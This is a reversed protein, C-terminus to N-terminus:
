RDAPLTGQAVPSVPRRGVRDKLRLFPEELWTFSAWAVGVSLVVGLVVRAWEPGVDVHHRLVSMVPFHYLYLGYSRAGFWRLPRWSLARSAIAGPSTVVGALVVVTLLGTVGVPGTLLDEPLSWPMVLLALLAGTTLTSVTGLLRDPLRHRWFHLLVALISGWVIPFGRLYTGRVNEIGAAWPVLISALAVLGVLGGCLSLWRRRSTLALLLLPWVVYFHEEIALTWTHDLLPAEHGTYMWWNAVYFLAAVVGRWTDRIQGGVAGAALVLLSTAVLAPYLRLLRRLYFRRLRVRGHRAIEGLLIASILFGSLAFFVDVRVYGNAAMGLDAHFLVVVIAAIGRLGDLGPWHTRATVGATM